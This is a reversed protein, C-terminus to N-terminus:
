ANVRNRYLTPDIADATLAIDLRDCVFESTRQSAIMPEAMLAAYGVRPTAMNPQRGLWAAVKANRGHSSDQM